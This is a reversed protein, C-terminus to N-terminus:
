KQLQAVSNSLNNFNGDYIISGKEIWVVRDFNKIVNLRHTVFILTSKSQTLLLKAVLAEESASDLANTGEDIVLLSPQQYFARALGVRQREGGSLFSGQEGLLNAIEHTFRTQQEALGSHNLADLFKDENFEESKEGFVINEKLSSNLLFSRQPVYVVKGPWRAFALKPDIGSIEVVGGNPKHFGLMLDVITSKGGGSPGVIAVKDGFQIELNLSDIKFRENRMYAFKVNKLLVKGDFSKKVDEVKTLVNSQTDAEREFLSLTPEIRGINGLFSILSQQVRLFAPGVRASAVLFLAISSLGTIFNNTVVHLLAILFAGFVIGVEFVYKSVYPYFNMYQDSKALEFRHNSIRKLFLDHRNLVSIEKQSNLLENILNNSDLIAAAAKDGFSVAKERMVKNMVFSIAAFYGIIFLAIPPNIVILGFTLFTIMSLDAYLIVVTPLIQGTILEVGRTSAYIRDNITTTNDDDDFSNNLKSLLSISIRVGALTVTKFMRKTFAASIITKFALSLTVIVAIAFIQKEFSYRELHFFQLIESQSKNFESTQLVTLVMGALFGTLLISLFDLINLLSHLVVYIKLKKRENDELMLVIRKLNFFSNSLKTVFSMVIKHM